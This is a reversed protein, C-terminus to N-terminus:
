NTGIGRSDIATFEAGVKAAAVDEGVAVSIM